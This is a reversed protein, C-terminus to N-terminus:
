LSSFMCCCRRFTLPLRIIEAFSDSWFSVKEFYFTVCNGSRMWHRRRPPLSPPPPTMMKRHMPFYLSHLSLHYKISLHKRSLWGLVRFSFFFLLESTTSSLPNDRDTLPFSLGAQHSHASSVGLILHLCRSLMWNLQAYKKRRRRRRKKGSVSKIKLPPSRSWTRAKFPLSSFFLSTFLPLCSFSPRPPTYFLARSQTKRKKKKYTSIFLEFANFLRLVAM